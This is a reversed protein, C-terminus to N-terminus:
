RTLRVPMLVHRYDADGADTLIMPRDPATLHLTVEDATLTTIADLLYAPNAGTTWPGTEGATTAPLPPATVKARDGDTAPTITVADSNVTITVTKGQVSNIASRAQQVGNDDFLSRVTASGDDVGQIGSEAAFVGTPDYGSVVKPRSDKVGQMGTEAAFVGTPDYGTVVEPNVDKIGALTAQAQEAGQLQAITIIQTKIDDPLGELAANLDDAEQQSLKAGEMAVTTEVYNPILGVSNAYAEAEAGAIGFQGLVGLIAARQEVMKANAAGIGEGNMIMADTASRADVALGRLYERNARGKETYQDTSTGNEEIQAKVGQLTAIYTDAAAESSLFANAASTQADNLSQIADAAANAADLVGQMADAEAQVAEATVQAAAAAQDQASLFAVTGDAALQYGNVVEGSMLSALDANSMKAVGASAAAADVKKAYSDFTELLLDTNLGDPDLSERLQTFLDSAQGFDMGTLADDLTSFQQKVKDLQGELGFLGVVVSEAGYSFGTGWNDTASQLLGFGSALSDVGGALERAPNTADRFLLDLSGMNATGAALRNLAATTEDIDHTKTTFNDLILGVGQMAIFAVAAIGAAKGLKGVATATKNILPSSSALEGMATQYAAFSSVGKMLAAGGLALGALATVAIMIGQAAGPTEGATDVLATLGQVMARLPGDATGGMQIALTSWSGGLKELDGILNNQLEAATRAAYGSDDVAATWEAIGEAGNEYLVSAARIADTGFITALASQRQADTLNGMKDSLQGALGELGVFQGQADYASIGLEDMLTQAEKSPKALKLLMTKLSTGADSGLLGAAAFASLGGVTEEIDLGFQSAVLGSQKLAMGLDDVGGMAKGAGAALLDALHPIQEGSLKFQTMATSAIGAADAVGIQGAAALSLAGSLGGGLIEQASVGARALEEIGQAAETASYATDAGQQIASDRLADISAKADEGTSAVGSMAQDFQSFERVALGAVAGAAVGVAGITNSVKNWSQENQMAVDQLKEFESQASKGASQMGKGVKTAAEGAQAMKQRFGDIRADLIVAVTRM